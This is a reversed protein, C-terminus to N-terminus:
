HLLSVPQSFEPTIGSWFNFLVSHEETGLFGYGIARRSSDTLDLRLMGIVSDNEWTLRLGFSLM